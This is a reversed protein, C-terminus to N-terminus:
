GYTKKNYAIIFSLKEGITQNIIKSAKELNIKHIMDDLILNLNNDEIQGANQIIYRMKAQIGVNHLEDNKESFIKNIANELDAECVSIPLDKYEKKCNSCIFPGIPNDANLTDLDEIWNKNVDVRVTHRVNQEAFFEKCGCEICFSITIM